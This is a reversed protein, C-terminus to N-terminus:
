PGAIATTKTPLCAVVILAAFSFFLGLVAWLVVNRGKAQAIKASMIPPILLVGCFVLVLVIEVPGLMALM